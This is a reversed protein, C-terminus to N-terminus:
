GDGANDQKGKEAAEDIGNETTLVDDATPVEDDRDISGGADTESV